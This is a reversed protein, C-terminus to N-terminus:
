HLPGFDTQHHCLSIEWKGWLKEGRSPREHSDFKNHLWDVFSGLSMATKVFAHAHQVTAWSGTIMADGNQDVSALLATSGM